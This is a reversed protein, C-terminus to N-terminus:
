NRRTARRRRAARSKAIPEDPVVRGERWNYKRRWYVNRYTEGKAEILAFDATHSVIRVETDFWRPTPLIELTREVRALSPDAVFLGFLEDEFNGEFRVDPRIAHGLVLYKNEFYTPRVDVVKIRTAKPNRRRFEAELSQLIGCAEGANPQASSAAGFAVLLLLTASTLRPFSLM